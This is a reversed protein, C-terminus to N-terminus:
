FNTVWFINSGTYYERVAIPNEVDGNTIVLCKNHTAKEDDGQRHEKTMVHTGASGNEAVHSSSPHHPTGDIRRRFFHRAIISLPVM